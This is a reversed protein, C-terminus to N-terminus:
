AADVDDVTVSVIDLAVVVVARVDVGLGAPTPLDTVKVAVTDLEPLTGVPLM